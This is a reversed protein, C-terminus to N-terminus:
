GPLDGTAALRRTAALLIAAGRPRPALGALAFLAGFGLVTDFVIFGPAGPSIEDFRGLLWAMVPPHWSNFVDSRGQQLQWVSDPSLQGPWNLWLSVAAGATFVLGLALRAQNRSPASLAM